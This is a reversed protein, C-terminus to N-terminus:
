KDVPIPAHFEQAIPLWELVRMYPNTQSNPLQEHEWIHMSKFTSKVNLHNVEGEEGEEVEHKRSSPQLVAGSFGDPIPVDLGRLGHGRFAAKLGDSPVQSFPRVMFYDSVKAIMM